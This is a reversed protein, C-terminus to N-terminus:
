FGYGWDLGSFFMLCIGSWHKEFGEPKDCVLHTVALLLSLLCSLHWTTDQLADPFLFPATLLFLPSQNIIFYRYPDIPQLLHVVSLYSTLLPSVPHPTFPFETSIAGSKRLGAGEWVGHQTDPTPTPSPTPRTHWVLHLPPAREKM